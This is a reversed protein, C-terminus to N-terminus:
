IIWGAKSRIQPLPTDVDVREYGIYERYPYVDETATFANIDATLCVRYNGNIYAAKEAVYLDSTTAMVEHMPGVAIVAYKWQDIRVRQNM